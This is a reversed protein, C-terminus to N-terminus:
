QKKVLEGSVIFTEYNDTTSHKYNIIADAKLEKGVQYLKYMGNVESKDASLTFKVKRLSKYKFNIKDDYSYFIFSKDSDMKKKQETSTEYKIESETKPLKSSEYELRKIEKDLEESKLEESAEKEAELNLKHIEKCSSFIIVLLFLFVKKM